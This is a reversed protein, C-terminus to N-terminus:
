QYVVKSRSYFLSKIISVCIAQCKTNYLSNREFEGERRNLQFLKGKEYNLSRQLDRFLPPIEALRSIRIGRIFVRTYIRM